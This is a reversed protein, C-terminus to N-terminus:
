VEQTNNVLNSYSDAGLNPKVAISTADTGFCGYQDTAKATFNFTGTATPTGSIAGASSLSLGTPLAGASVNYTYTPSNNPRVSSASSQGTYANNYTAPPFSGGGNRTVTVTPCTIVLTYTTSTGSCGNSDTVTVTIPFSGTQTPTGSLVGTASNLTMGT